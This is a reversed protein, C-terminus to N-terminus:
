EKESKQEDEKNKHYNNQLFKEIESLWAKMQMRSMAYFALIACVILVLAKLTGM